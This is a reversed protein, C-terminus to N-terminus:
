IRVFGLLCVDVGHRFCLIIELELKKDIGGM